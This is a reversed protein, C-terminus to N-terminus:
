IRKMRGLYSAIDDSLRRIWCLESSQEDSRGLRHVRRRPGSQSLRSTPNHLVPCQIGRISRVNVGAQNARVGRPYQVMTEGSLCLMGLVDKYKSPESLTVVGPLKAARHTSKRFISPLQCTIRRKILRIRLNGQSALM